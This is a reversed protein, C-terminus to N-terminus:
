DVDEFFDPNEIIKEMMAILRDDSNLIEGFYRKNTKSRLIEFSQEMNKMEIVSFIGDLNDIAYNEDNSPLAGLPCGDGLRVKSMFVAGIACVHCTEGENFVEQVDEVDPYKDRIKEIDLSDKEFDFTYYAHSIQPILQGQKIALIVDKAIAIKKETKSLAQFKKNRRKLTEKTVKKLQRM